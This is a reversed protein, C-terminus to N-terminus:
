IFSFSHLTTDYSFLIKFDSNGFRQVFQQVTGPTFDYKSDIHCLVFYMECSEWFLGTSVPSYIVFKKCPLDQNSMRILLMVVLSASRHLNTTAVFGVGGTKQLFLKDRSPILHSWTWRSASKTIILMSKYLKARSPSISQNKCAGHM